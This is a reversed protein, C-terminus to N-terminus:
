IHILSLIAGTPIVEVRVAARDAGMKMIAGKGYSKEIQLIALGLAKKKEDLQAASVAM